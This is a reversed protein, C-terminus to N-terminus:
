STQVSGDSLGWDRQISDWGELTNVALCEHEIRLLLSVIGQLPPRLLAKLAERYRSLHGPSERWLVPLILTVNRLINHWWAPLLGPSEVGLSGANCRERAAGVVWVAKESIQPWVACGSCALCEGWRLAHFWLWQAARCRVKPWTRTETRAAWNQPPVQNIMIIPVSLYSFSVLTVKEIFGAFCGVGKLCM